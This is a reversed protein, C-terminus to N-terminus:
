KEGMNIGPMKHNKSEYIYEGSKLKDVMEKETCTSLELSNSDIMYLVRDVNDTKTRLLVIRRYGKKGDQYEEKGLFSKDLEEGFFGFHHYGLFTQIAENGFINKQKMIEIFSELKSKLNNPIEEKGVNRLEQLYNEISSQNRGFVMPYVKEIAQKIVGGRDSVIDIGELEIGNRAKMLDNTGGTRANIADLMVSVRDTYFGVLYHERNAGESIIVAEIEENLENIMKSFIRSFDWCTIKSGTKISELHEKSFTYEYRGNNLHNRFFYGEDYSLEMCLKCYIYMAQEEVSLDKPMDKFVATRLEESITWDPEEGKRIVKNSIRERSTFRKFEYQPNVYRDINIRDFKEKDNIRNM